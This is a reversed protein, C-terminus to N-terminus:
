VATGDLRRYSIAETLHHRDIHEDGALDFRGGQKPLYAPALNITIRRTPFGFQSNLLAGRGRDKSERAETEPLGVMSLAPLGNALHVEVNVLPADIGAQARCYINALSM